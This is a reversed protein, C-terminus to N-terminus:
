NSNADLSESAEKAAREKDIRKVVIISVEYLLYLPLAVLMQSFVDPGPTIVAAVIVIIVLSHKRYQVLSESSVLGVKALFYLIVPTEFILGVPITFM